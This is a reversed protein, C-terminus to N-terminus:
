IRPSHRWVEMPYPGRWLGQIPIFTGYRLFAAMYIQFCTLRGFIIRKGKDPVNERLWEGKPTGPGDRVVKFVATCGPGDVHRHHLLFDEMGFPFGPSGLSLHGFHKGYYGSYALGIM